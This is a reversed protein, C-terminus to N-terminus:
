IIDNWKVENRSVSHSFSITRINSNTALLQGM